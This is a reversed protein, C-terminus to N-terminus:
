EVELPSDVLLTLMGSFTGEDFERANFIGVTFIVETDTPIFRKKKNYLIDFANM